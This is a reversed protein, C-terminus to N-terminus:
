IEPKLVTMRRKVKDQQTNDPPLLKVAELYLEYLGYARSKNKFFVDNAVALNLLTTPDKDDISRASMPKQNVQSKQKADQSDFSPNNVQILASLNYYQMSKKLEDFSQALKFYKNKMSYRRISVYSKYEANILLSVTYINNPEILMSQELFAIATEYEKAELCARGLLTLSQSDNSDKYLEEAQKIIALFDKKNENNAKALAALVLIKPTKEAAPLCPTIAKDAEALNGEKILSVTKEISAKLDIKTCGTLLLVIAFSAFLFRM